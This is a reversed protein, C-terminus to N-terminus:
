FDLYNILFSDRGLIRLDKDLYEFQYATFNTQADINLAVCTCSDPMMLGRITTLEYEKGTLNSNGLYDQYYETLSNSIWEPNILYMRNISVFGEEVFKCDPVISYNKGDAINVGWYPNYLTDLDLNLQALEISKYDQFLISEELAQSFQRKGLFLFLMIFVIFSFGGVRLVTAGAGKGARSHNM